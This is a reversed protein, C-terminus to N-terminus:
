ANKRAFQRRLALALLGGGAFLGYTAPEPVASVPDWVVSASTGNINVLLDGDYSWTNAGNDDTVSWIDLALSSTLGTLPNAAANAFNSGANAGVQTPSQAIVQNWATRNGLSTATVGLSVQEAYSAAGDVASATLAGSPKSETGATGYSYVSSGTRLSSVWTTEGGTPDIVGDVDGGVVGINVAASGFTTNFTSASIGGGIQTNATAPVQGLDIVYDSSVSGSNLGLVLDGDSISQAQLAQTVMAAGIALVSIKAINNM